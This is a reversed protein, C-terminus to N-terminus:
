EPGLGTMKYSKFGLAILMAGAIFFISGILSIRIFDQAYWDSDFYTIPIALVFVTIGILVLSKHYEM